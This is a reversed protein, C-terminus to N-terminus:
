QIIAKLTLGKVTYTLTRYRWMQNRGTVKFQATYKGRMGPQQRLALYSKQLAGKKAITFCMWHIIATPSREGQWADIKPPCLLFLLPFTIHWSFDWFVLTKQDFTHQVNLPYLSCCPYYSQLNKIKCWHAIPLNCHVVYWNAGIHLNYIQISSCRITAKTQRVSLNHVLSPFYIDSCKCLWFETLM